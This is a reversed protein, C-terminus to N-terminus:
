IKVHVWIFAPLGLPELRNLPFVLSIGSFPDLEMARRSEVRGREEDEEEEKMQAENKRGQKGRIHSKFFFDVVSGGEQKNAQARHM